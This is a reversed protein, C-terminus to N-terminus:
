LTENKDTPKKDTDTHTPAGGPANHNQKGM